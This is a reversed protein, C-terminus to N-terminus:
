VIDISSDGILTVILLVYIAVAIRPISPAAVAKAPV